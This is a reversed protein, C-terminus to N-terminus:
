GLSYSLLGQEPSGRTLLVAGAGDGFLPYTKDDQPDLVRSLCDGGVVLALDSAGAAVYSSATVLAYLFGAWAAGLDLAPCCPGLRDQVVCATAPITVDATVTALVLLDVDTPRVRARALCRLAAECCLDSTAQHPPAHRRERIGTLRHLARPNIGLKQELHDNSIVHDPVYAGTALIRVGTLSRCPPRPSAPPERTR